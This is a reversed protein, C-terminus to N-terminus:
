VETYFMAEKGGKVKMRELEEEEDQQWRRTPSGRKRSQFINVNYKNIERAREM